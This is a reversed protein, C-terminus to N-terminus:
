ILVEKIAHIPINVGGKLSVQDESAQWITTEVAKTGDTTEFIIKVKSHYGNGLLMGKELKMFRVKRADKDTLVDEQVFHLTNVQEKEILEITEM